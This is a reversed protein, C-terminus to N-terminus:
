FAASPITILKLNILFGTLWIIDPLKDKWIFKINKPFHM